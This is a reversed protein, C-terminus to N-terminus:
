ATVKAAAPRKFFAVLKSEWPSEVVSVLEWGLAGQDRLEADHDDHRSFDLSQYEWCVRNSQDSSSM